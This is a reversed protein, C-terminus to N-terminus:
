DELEADEDEIESKKLPKAAVNIDMYYDDSENNPYNVKWTSELIDIYNKAHRAGLFKGLGELATFRWGNYYKRSTHISWVQKRVINTEDVPETEDSLLENFFRISKNRRFLDDVALIEGKLTIEITIGNSYSDKSFNWLSITKLPLAYELNQVKVYDDLDMWPYPNNEDKQNVNLRGKRCDLCILDDVLYGSESINENIRLEIDCVRCLKTETTGNIRSLITKPNIAVQPM